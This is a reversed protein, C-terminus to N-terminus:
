RNAGEPEAATHAGEHDPHIGSTTSHYEVEDKTLAMYADELSSVVPTLEHLM